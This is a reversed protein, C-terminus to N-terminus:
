LLYINEKVSCVDSLKRGSNNSTIKPIIEGKGDARPMRFFKKLIGKETM